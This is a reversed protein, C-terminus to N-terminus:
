VPIKKQSKALKDNATALEPDSTKSAARDLFCRGEYITWIHNM